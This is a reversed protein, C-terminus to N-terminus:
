RSVRDLTVSYHVAARLPDFGGADAVQDRMHKRMTHIRDHLIQRPSRHAVGRQVGGGPAPVGAVSTSASGSSSGGTTSGGGSSRDGSRSGQSADAARVPDGSRGRFVEAVWLTGNRVVVGVGVEDAKSSMLNARHPASNMFMQHTQAVSYAYGVNEGLWSWCCLSGGLDPTHSLAGNAAMVQARAVAASSLDGAVSLPALGSSSRSANIMGVIRAAADSAGAPQAALPGASPTNLAPVVVAVTLAAVAVLGAALRRRRLTM